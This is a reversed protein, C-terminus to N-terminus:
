KGRRAILGGALATGSLVGLISALYKKNVSPGVPTKGIFSMPGSIRDRGGAMAYLKEERSMSAIDNKKLGQKLLKKDMTEDAKFGGKPKMKIEVGAEPSFSKGESSDYANRIVKALLPYDTLRGQIAGRKRKKLSEIIEDTPRSLHIMANFKDPDNVSLLHTQEYITGKPLKDKASLGKSFGRGGAREVGLAEAASRMGLKDKLLRAATSKGTGGTASMGITDTKPNFGQSKLYKAISDARTIAQPPPNFNSSSYNQKAKEKKDFKMKAESLITGRAMPDLFALGALGVGAGIAAGGLASMANKEFRSM